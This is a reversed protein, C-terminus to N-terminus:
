HPFGTSCPAQGGSSLEPNKRTGERLTVIVVADDRTTEIALPPFLSHFVDSVTIFSFFYKNDKQMHTKSKGGYTYHM